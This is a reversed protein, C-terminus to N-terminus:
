AIGAPLWHRRTLYWSMQGQHLSKLVVDRVVQNIVQVILFAHCTNQRDLVEAEKADQETNTQLEETIDLKFILLLNELKVLPDGHSHV